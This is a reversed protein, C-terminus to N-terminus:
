NTLGMPQIISDLWYWVLRAYWEVHLSKSESNKVGCLVNCIVEGKTQLRKGYISRAVKETHILKLKGIKKWTNESIISFDWHQTWM